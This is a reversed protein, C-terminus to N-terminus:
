GSRTRTSGRPAARQDRGRSAACRRPPGPPWWATACARWPSACSLAEPLRAGRGLAAAGHATLVVRCRRVAGDAYGVQVALNRPVAAAASNILDAIGAFHLASLEDLAGSLRAGGALVWEWRHSPGTGTVDVWHDCEIDGYYCNLVFVGVVHALDDM